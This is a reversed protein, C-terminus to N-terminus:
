VPNSVSVRGALGTIIVHNSSPTVRGCSTYTSAHGVAAGDGVEVGIM